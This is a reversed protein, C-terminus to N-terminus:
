VTARETTAEVYDWLDACHSWGTLLCTPGVADIKEVETTLAAVLDHDRREKALRMTDATPNPNLLSQMFDAVRARPLENQLKQVSRLLTEFQQATLCRGAASLKGAYVRNLYDEWSSGVHDFSELVVTNISNTCRGAADKAYNALDEALFKVARIPANHHCFVLGAAHTLRNTNFDWKATLEFFRQAFALGRWAPMVFMMEDGGWLLTEFRFKGDTTFDNQAILDQMMVKLLERRLRKIETDWQKLLDPAVVRQHKGFSNGDAYFVALKNHLNGRDKCDAIEHFDNTFLRGQLDFNTERTYFRQKEDRGFHKRAVVAASNGKSPAPRLHDVGCIDAMVDAPFQVSPARMQSRRNKALVAECDTRFNGTSAIHDIVFTAHKYTPHSDLELRIAAGIAAVTQNQQEGTAVVALLASSAGTSIETVTAGQAVAATQATEAAQAAARLLLLGGGRTTALDTTDFIFNRHNVGEVRLLHTYKIPESM